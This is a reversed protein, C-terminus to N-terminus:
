ATASGFIWRAFTTGATSRRTKCPSAGVEVPDLQAVPTLKGTRGVQWVVGRLVTEAAEAPWKRAIAWCPERGVVGLTRQMSLANVKFVVGDIDYDLESRRAAVEDAFRHADALTPCLRRLPCTVFGWAELMELLEQQTGGPYEADVPLVVGYAFLRLPRRATISPDLQRLSGAAANRPNRFPEAGAALHEGNLREFGTRPMCVEGRVAVQSSASGVIQHPIDAITRVNATVDDGVIGNGRTAGRTLQGDVYTLELSLGDIKLEGFFPALTGAAIGAARAERQDWAALEAADFANGLSLMPAAHTVKRFPTKEVSAGVHQTPSDPTRPSPYRAELTRLRTM